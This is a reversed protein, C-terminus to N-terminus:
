SIYKGYRRKEDNTAKRLSIVRIADSREVYVLTFLGLGIWGIASWREEGYDLDDDLEILASRFEFRVVLEFDVRHKIRNTRAKKEDWEFRM